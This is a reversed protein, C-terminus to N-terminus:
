TTKHAPTNAQPTHATHHLRICLRLVFLADPLSGGPDAGVPPGLFFGLLAVAIMIVATHVLAGGNLLEVKGLPDYAPQLELQIFGVLYGTCFVFGAGLIAGLKRKGGAAGVLAVGTTMFFVAILRARQADVGLDIITSISGIIISEHFLLIGALLALLFSGINPIYSSFRGIHPHLTNRGALAHENNAAKM